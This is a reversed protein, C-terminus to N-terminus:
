TSFGTEMIALHRGHWPSGLPATAIARALDVIKSWREHIGVTWTRPYHDLGVIDVARQSLDLLREVYDQWGWLDTSVNIAVRAAPLNRRIITAGRELAMATEKLPLFGYLP